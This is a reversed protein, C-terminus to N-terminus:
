QAAAGSADAEPEDSDPYDLDAPSIYNLDDPDLDTPDIYDLDDPDLYDLDDPDIYNLDDPDLAAGGQPAATSEPLRNPRAIPTPTAGANEVADKGITPVPRPTDLQTPTYGMQGDDAIPMSEPDARYVLVLVEELHMFDVYPEVVIYNKNEDMHRTSERVVGIKLGKPMHEAVSAQEVGTTMVGSTVVTDGPRPVVDAPLYYMRCTAAEEVGLTGKIIGQDRTSEILGGISSRSDIISVVNATRPTLEYIVGILGDENIVAMGQELGDAEGKNITFMSFWNGSEKATVSALVPNMSERAEYEGMLGQLRIVKAELEDNLLSQYVLRENETILKNYESELIRRFKWNQAARYVRDGAWTLARQVPALTENIVRRPMAVLAQPLFEQEPMFREVLVLATAGIVLLFALVAAMVTLWNHKRRTTSVM